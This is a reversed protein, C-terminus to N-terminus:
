AECQVATRFNVSRPLRGAQSSGRNKAKATEFAPYAALGNIACDQGDALLAGQDRAVAEHQAM